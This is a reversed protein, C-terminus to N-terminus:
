KIKEKKLMFDALKSKVGLIKNFYIFLYDISFFSQGMLDILVKNIKISKNTVLNTRM